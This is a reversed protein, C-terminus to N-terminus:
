AFNMGASDMDSAAAEGLPSCGKEDEAWAIRACNIGECIRM